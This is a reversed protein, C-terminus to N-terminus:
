QNRYRSTRSVRMVLTTIYVEDSGVTVEIRTRRVKEYDGEEDTGAVDAYLQDLFNDVLTDNSTRPDTTTKPTVLHCLYDVEEEYIRNATDQAVSEDEEETPDVVFVPWSTYEQSLDETEITGYDGTNTAATELTGVPDSPTHTAM